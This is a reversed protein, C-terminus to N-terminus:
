PASAEIKAPELRPALLQIILLATIYALSAALFIVFYNGPEGRAIAAGRLQGV